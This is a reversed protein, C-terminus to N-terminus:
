NTDLSHGCLDHNEQAKVEHINILVFHNINVDTVHDESNVVYLLNNQIM